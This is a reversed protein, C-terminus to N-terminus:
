LSVLFKFTVSSLIGLICVFVLQKSQIQGKHFSHDHAVEWFKVFVAAFFTSFVVATTSTHFVKVDIITLHTVVGYRGVVQSIWCTLHLDCGHHLITAILLGASSSHGEPIVSFILRFAYREIQLEDFRAQITVPTDLVYAWLLESTGVKSKQPAFPHM